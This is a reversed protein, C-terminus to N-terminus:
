KGWKEMQQKMVQKTLDAIETEENSAESDIIIVGIIDGGSFYAPGYETLFEAVGYTQLPWHKAFREAERLNQFIAKIPTLQGKVYIVVEVPQSDM